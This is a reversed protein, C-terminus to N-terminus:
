RKKMETYNEQLILHKRIENMHELNHIETTKQQIEVNELRNDYITQTENM